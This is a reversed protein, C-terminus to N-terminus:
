PCSNGGCCISSIMLSDPLTGLCLVVRYPVGAGLWVAAENAAPGSCGTTIPALVVAAQIAHPCINSAPAQQAIITLKVKVFCHSHKTSRLTYAATLTNQSLRTCSMQIVSNNPVPPCKTARCRSAVVCTDGVILTSLGISGSLVVMLVTSWLFWATSSVKGSITVEKNGLGATGVGWAAEQNGLMLVTGHQSLWDIVSSVWDHLDEAFDTRVSWLSGGTSASRAYDIV